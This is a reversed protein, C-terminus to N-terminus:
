NCLRALAERGHKLTASKLFDSRPYPCLSDVYDHKNIYKNIDAAAGALADRSADSGEVADEHANATAKSLVFILM